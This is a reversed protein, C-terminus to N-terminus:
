RPFNKFIDAVEKSVRKDRSSPSSTEHVHREGVGRWILGGSEVDELDITLTGRLEEYYAPGYGWDAWGGWAWGWYPGGYGYGYPYAYPYAYGVYTTETHFSRYAVVYVDPNKDDRVLGRRELQGAIAVRTREDMLPGDYTTSMRSVTKDPTVDKFAYTRIAGFNYRRDLDYTRQAVAASSVTCLSLALGIATRATTTM